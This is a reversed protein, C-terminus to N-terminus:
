KIKGKTTRGKGSQRASHKHPVPDYGGPSWPHCSFFRKTGLWLGKFVGWEEIAEIMYTSCTPQYRCSPPFLPSIFRKYFRVPLIFILKFFREM